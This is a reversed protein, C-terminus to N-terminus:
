YILDLMKTNIKEEHQKNKISNYKRYIFRDFFLMNTIIKGCLDNKAGIKNLLQARKVDIDNKNEDLLLQYFNEWDHRIIKDWKSEGGTSIGTGLEYWTVYEDMYYIDFGDLVTFVNVCDETFKVHDDIKLLCQLYYEREWSYAAGSINDGYALLYKKQQKNPNLYARPNLPYNVSSIMGNPYETYGAMKGFVEKANKEQMFEVLHCLTYESYLYDGPAIVRVYKADSMKLGSIINKVTGQNKKNEILQYTEFNKEKMYRKIKPFLNERSGDDAIFIDFNCDKQALVSDLTRRLKDWIPEYQVIVVSILHEQM